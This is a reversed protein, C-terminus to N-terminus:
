FFVKQTSAKEGDSIKIIYVGKLTSSVTFTNFNGEGFHTKIVKLGLLNYVEGFANNSVTGEINVQHGSTWVRLDPINNNDTLPKIGTPLNVSACLEIGDGTGLNRSYQKDTENNWHEHVGLSELPTGDNEPDYIIGTPWNAADAAQHLYEDVGNMQPYAGYSNGATYETRLFDFAVSEIAVPDQSAFISSTWDNNFPTSKWKNPPDVAEPGAWLGDLLYFLEKGGLLKHGMLDVQVRYLKTGTRYNKGYDEDPNVLGMHLHKADDRCQSGLHNKAFLTIGARAHAKLAPINIMYEIDQFVTYLYDSLVPSGSSADNFSGTRLVAGRDSYFILPNSSQVVQVRGLNGYNDHDLYRVNPFESHWLEYCHKYIHKMPDGVYINSQAIGVTNVLQRLVALVVQPSTEAVGYYNNNVKSLDSTNYNGSWASTANVKILIKEGASYSLSGKGHNQNYYKFIANWANLDTTEGTLLQIASSVMQNIVDENNNKTLFWGDGYANTCDANTADPDYIWVVRGPNIGKATGIPANAPQSFVLDNAYVPKDGTITTLLGAFMAAFLFLTAPLYRSQLYHRKSKKFLAVTSLLGLLYLVFSSAIPAATRMCPYAARSPKPIVRILFWLLSGIGSVFFIIKQYSIRSKKKV